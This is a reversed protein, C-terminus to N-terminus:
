EIWNFLNESFTISYNGSGQTWSVTSFIKVENPNIIVRSITRTFGADIPYPSTIDAINGDRFNSWNKGTSGTYLVYTDRVNRAYEIGEQALYVAIVKKQAYNTSSIGSALVSILALISATFISIAVLTEVLTFGRSQQLKAPCTKNKRKLFKQM